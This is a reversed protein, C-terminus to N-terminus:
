DKVSATMKDVAESTTTTDSVLKQSTRLQSQLREREQQSSALLSPAPLYFYFYAFVTVIALLAAGALGILEPLGIVILGPARSLQDLRIPIRRPQAVAPAQIPQEQSM